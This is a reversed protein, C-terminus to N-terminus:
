YGTTLWDNFEQVARDAECEVFLQTENAYRVAQEAHYELERVYDEVESRYNDLDWDSCGGSQTPDCYPKSPQSFYAAPPPTPEYCYANARQAM